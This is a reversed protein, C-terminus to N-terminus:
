SCGTFFLFIKMYIFINYYFNRIPDNTSYSQPLIEKMSSNKLLVESENPSAFFLKKIVWWWLWWWWWGDDYNLIRSSTSEPPNYSKTFFLFLRRRWISCKWKHFNMKIKALQLIKRWWFVIQLLKKKTKGMITERTRKM